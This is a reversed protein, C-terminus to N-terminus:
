NNETTRYKEGRRSERQPGRPDGRERSIALPLHRLCPQLDKPYGSDVPYVDDTCAWTLRLSIRLNMRFRILTDQATSENEDEYLAIRNDRQSYYGVCNSPLSVNM